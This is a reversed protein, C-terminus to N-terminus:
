SEELTLSKQSSLTGPLYAGQAKKEAIAKLNALGAEFDKGVMRDMDFVVDLMKGLFNQPGEMSWSVRTGSGEPELRFEAVNHAEFPEIFEVEGNRFPSSCHASAILTHEDEM